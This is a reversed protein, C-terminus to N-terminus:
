SKVQLRRSLGRTIQRESRRFGDVDRVGHVHLEARGVREGDLAGRGGAATLAAALLAGGPQLTALNPLRPLRPSVMGGAAFGPLEGRNM